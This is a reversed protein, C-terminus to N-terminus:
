EPFLSTKISQLGRIFWHFGSSAILERAPPESWISPNGPTFFYVDRLIMFNMM